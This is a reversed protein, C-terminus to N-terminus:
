QLNQRRRRETRKGFRAPLGSDRAMLYFLLNLDLPMRVRTKADADTNKTTV